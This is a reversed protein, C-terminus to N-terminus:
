IRFMIKDSKGVTAVLNNACRPECQIGREKLKQVVREKVVAAIGVQHWTYSMSAFVNEAPNGRRLENLHVMPADIISMDLDIDQVILSAKKEVYLNFEEVAKAKNTRMTEATFTPEKQLSSAETRIVGDVVWGTVQPEELPKVPLPSSAKTICLGLNKGDNDDILPFTYYHDKKFFKIVKERVSEKSLLVSHEGSLCGICDPWHVAYMLTDSKTELYRRRALMHAYMCDAVSWEEKEMEEEEWEAASKKTSPTADAVPQKMPLAPGTWPLHMHKMLPTDSMEGCRWSPSHIFLRLFFRSVRKETEASNLVREDSSM